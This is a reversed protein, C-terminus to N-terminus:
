VQDITKLHDEVTPLSSSFNLPPLFEPQFSYWVKFPSQNTASHTHVNHAFEVFPLLQSWNDQQYNCFSRFFQEIEQNVQETEGDTQPYFATSLSQTVKLKNWVEKM